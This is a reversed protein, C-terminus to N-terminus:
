PELRRKLEALRQLAELPTLTDISLRRLEEVVPHPTAAAEFLPLSPASAPAATAARRKGPARELEEVTRESELESLVERARALVTEPLGALQAVHIGYSRDAPGEAIRHLFVIGEGWEKVAVHANALRPLREALQTLEHYHTAFITRPRPGRADHLYETVAWAIALGDYTATGRGIEDLLVLSRSTATALITATETMEVMFTSQGAGLRDAAGVRTFLRDVLGVIASQAPVWSGSQALLVLLAVQRLYTSKGGMNPGTLLVVQRERADLRV